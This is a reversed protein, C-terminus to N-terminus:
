KLEMRLTISHLSSSVRKTIPERRNLVARCWRAQAVVLHITSQSIKSHRILVVASTFEKLLTLVTNTLLHTAWFTTVTEMSQLARQRHAITTQWQTEWSVVKPRQIILIPQITCKGVMKLTWVMASQPTCRIPHTKIMSLLCALERYGM